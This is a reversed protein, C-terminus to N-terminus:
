LVNLQNQLKIVEKIEVESNEGNVEKKRIMGRLSEIKDKIPRSKLIKLCDTVIQEPKDIEDESFLIQAISNHDNM